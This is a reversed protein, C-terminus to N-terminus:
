IIVKSKKIYIKPDRTPNSGVREVGCASVSDTVSDCGNVKKIELLVQSNFGLSFSNRVSAPIVIRGKDDLFATFVISNPNSLDKKSKWTFDNM